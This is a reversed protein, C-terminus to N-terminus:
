VPHSTPDYDSDACDEPIHIPGQPNLFTVTEGGFDFGAETLAAPFQRGLKERLVRTWEQLQENPVLPAITSLRYTIVMPLSSFPKPAGKEPASESM